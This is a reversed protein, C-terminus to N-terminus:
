SFTGLQFPKRRHSLPSIIKGVDVIQFATAQNDFRVKMHYINFSDHEIIPNQKVRVYITGKCSLEFIETSFVEFESKPVENSGYSIDFISIDVITFEEIIENERYFSKISESIKSSIAAELQNM